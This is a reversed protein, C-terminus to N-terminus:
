YFCQPIYIHKKIIQDTGQINTKISVNHFTFTIRAYNSSDAIERTKISVNHFTFGWGQISILDRFVTKISVNHFTFVM